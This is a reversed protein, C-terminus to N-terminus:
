SDWFYEDKGYIKVEECTTKEGKSRVIWVPSEIYGNDMEDLLPDLTDQAERWGMVKPFRFQREGIDKLRIVFTTSEIMETILNEQHQQAMLQKLYQILHM